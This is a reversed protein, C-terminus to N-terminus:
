NMIKTIEDTIISFNPKLFRAFRVRLPPGYITQHIQHGFFLKL